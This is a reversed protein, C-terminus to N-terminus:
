FNIKLNKLMRFRSIHCVYTSWLRAASKFIVSMNLLLLEYNNINSTVFHGLKSVTASAKFTFYAKSVFCSCLEGTLLRHFMCDFSLCVPYDDLPRTINLVKTKTLYTM